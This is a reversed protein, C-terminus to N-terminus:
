ALAPKPQALQRLRLANLILKAQVWLTVRSLRRVWAPLPALGGAACTLGAFTREIRRRQRDAWDHFQTSLALGRLRHPSQSRHGKGANPKTTLAVLQHGNAAADDYRQNHDYQGDGLVWGRGSLQQLLPGAAHGDQANLPTVCWAVPMVGRGWLAHLKYGLSWIKPRTMGWRADRDKSVLSVTLPKSDIAKVPDPRDTKLSEQLAAMLDLVAKSRLRKSMRDQSPLLLPPLAPDWNSPDCAWSINREHLVAWFYVAVITTAPYKWGAPFSCGLRLILEYLSLWREREMVSEGSHHRSFETPVRVVEFVVAGM